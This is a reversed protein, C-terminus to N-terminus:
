PSISALPFYTVYAGRRRDGIALVMERVGARGSRFAVWDVAVRGVFRWRQEGERGCYGGDPFVDLVRELLGYIVHENLEVARARVVDRFM